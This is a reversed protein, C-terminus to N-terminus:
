KKKAIYAVYTDYVEVAENLSLDFPPKSLLFISTRRDHKAIIKGVEEKEGPTEWRIWTQLKM